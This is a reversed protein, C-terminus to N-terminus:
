INNEKKRMHLFSYKSVTKIGQVFHIGLSILAEKHKNALHTRNLLPVVSSPTQEIRLMSQPFFLFYIDPILSKSLSLAIFLDKCSVLM